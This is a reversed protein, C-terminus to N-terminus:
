LGWIPSLLPGYAGACGAFDACSPEAICHRVGAELEARMTKELTNLSIADVAGCPQGCRASRNCLDTGLTGPERWPASCETSMPCKHEIECSMWSAEERRFIRAYGNCYEEDHQDSGCTRGYALCTQYVDSDLEPLVIRIEWRECAGSGSCAAPCHDSCISSCISFCSSPASPSSCRDTCQSCLEATQDLCSECATRACTREYYPGGDGASGADSQSGSSCACVGWAISLACLWLGRVTMFRHRNPPVALQSFNVLAHRLRSLMGGFCFSGRLTPWSSSAASSSPSSSASVAPPKRWRRPSGTRPRSGSAARGQEDAPETRTANRGRLRAQECGSAAFQLCHRHV